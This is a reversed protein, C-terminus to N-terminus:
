DRDSLQLPTGPTFWEAHSTLFIEMGAPADLPANALGIALEVAISGYTDYNMQSGVGPQIGHPNRLHDVVSSGRCIGVESTSVLEVTRVYRVTQRSGEAGTSRSAPKAPRSGEDMTGSASSSM